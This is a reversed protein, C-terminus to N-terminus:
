FDDDPLTAPDDGYSPISVPETAETEEVTEEPETVLPRSSSVGEIDDGFELEPLTAPNGSYPLTPVDVAPDTVFLGKDTPEADAETPDIVDAPANGSDTSNETGPTQDDANNCACLAMSLIISLAILLVLFRYKM